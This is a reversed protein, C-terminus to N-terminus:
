IEQFRLKEFFQCRKEFPTLKTKLQIREFNYFHIYDDILCRADDMTAPKLRHLWESKLTSFFNEAPANDLPTGPSSMSPTINYSQTLKFYGHSTYQFGQDSHLQLEATIEKQALRITEFVLNNDNQSGVKYSVIFNDYLDKIVSLYLFGEKTPIYSIDTCWKANPRDAYFNREFKNEYRHLSEINQVWKRRRRSKSLLDYKNMIRLVAKHNIVLGFERLLWIKVRRYGYTCRTKKQCEKILEGILKDHDEKDLKKVWAYYGSRSVNFFKCMDYISYKDKFRHIVRYKISAKM